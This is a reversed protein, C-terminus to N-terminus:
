WKRTTQWKREGKREIIPDSVTEKLYFSGEFGEFPGFVRRYWGLQHWLVWRMATLAPKRQTEVSAGLRTGLTGCLSTAGMMRERFHKGNTSNRKMACKQICSNYNMVPPNTLFSIDKGSSSNGEGTFYM